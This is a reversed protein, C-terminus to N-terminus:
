HIGGSFGFGGWKAAGLFSALAALVFLAQFVQFKKM